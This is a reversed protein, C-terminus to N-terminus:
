LQGARRAMLDRESRERKRCNYEHFTGEAAGCESCDSSYTQLSGISHTAKLCESLIRNEEATPKNRVVHYIPYMAKLKAVVREAIDGKDADSLVYTSVAM